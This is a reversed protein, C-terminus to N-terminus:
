KVDSDKINLTLKKQALKERLRDRMEIKRILPNSASRAEQQSARKSCVEKIRKVDKNYFRPNSKADAKFGYFLSPNQELYSIFSEYPVDVDKALSSVLEKDKETFNISAM